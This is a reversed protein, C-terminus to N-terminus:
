GRLSAPGRSSPSAVRTGPKRGRRAKFVKRYIATEKSGLQSVGGQMHGTVIAVHFHNIEQQLILCLDVRPCLYSPLTRKLSKLVLVGSELRDGGGGLVTVGGEMLSGLLAVCVDDVQQQVVSRRGVLEGVHTRECM